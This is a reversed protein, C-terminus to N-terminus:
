CNLLSALVTWHLRLVNELQRPGEQLSFNLSPIERKGAEGTVSPM